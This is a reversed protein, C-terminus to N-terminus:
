SVQALPERHAKLIPSSGADTRGNVSKSMYIESVLQVIMILNEDLANNPHPIPQM